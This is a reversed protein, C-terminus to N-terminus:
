APGKFAVGGEAAVYTSFLSGGKEESGRGGRIDLAVISLAVVHMDRCKDGEGAGEVIDWYGTAEEVGGKIAGDAKVESIPQVAPVGATVCTCRRLREERVPELLTIATGREGMAYGPGPTLSVAPSRRGRRQGLGTGGSTHAPDVLRM